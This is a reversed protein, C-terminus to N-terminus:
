QSREWVKHMEPTTVEAFGRVIWEHGTELFALAGDLGEGDPRGRATLTAIFIPSPNQSGAPRRFASQASVHLRGAFNGRADPIAYRTAFRADGVAPLFSRGSERWYTFVKHVDSHTEWVGDGVIHNVYTVECQVPRPDGLRHKRIFEQFIRLNDRFRDRTTEFSPYSEDTDNRRWNRAFLNHQVQILETGAESVFWSRTRPAQFSIEPTAPQPRLQESEAPIELEPQDEVKPFDSRFENWLLGVHAAMLDIGDFKISLALEVVPPRRFKPLPGNPTPM